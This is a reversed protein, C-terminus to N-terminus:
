GLPMRRHIRRAHERLDEVNFTIGPLTAHLRELLEVLVDRERAGAMDRAVGEAVARVTEPVNGGPPAARQVPADVMVPLPTLRIASVQERRRRWLM